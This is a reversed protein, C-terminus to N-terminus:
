PIKIFFVSGAPLPLSSVCSGRACGAPVPCRQCRASPRRAPRGRGPVGAHQTRPLPLQARGHPCPVNSDGKPHWTGALDRLFVAVGGARWLSLATYNIACNPPFCFCFSVTKGTARSRDKEKKTSSFLCSLAFPCDAKSM